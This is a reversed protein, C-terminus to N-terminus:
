WSTIRARPRMSQHCSLGEESRARCRPSSSRAHATPQTEHLFGQSSSKPPSNSRPRRRNPSHDHGETMVLRKRRVVRLAETSAVSASRLLHQLEDSARKQSTARSQAQALDSAAKTKQAQLEQLRADLHERTRGRQHCKGFARCRQEKEDLHTWLAETEAARREAEEVGVRARDVAEAYRQCSKACRALHEQSRQFDDFGASEAVEGVHSNTRPELLKPQFLMQSPERTSQQLFFDSESRVLPKSNSSDDGASVQPADTHRQASSSRARVDDEWLQRGLATAVDHDGKDDHMLSAANIGHQVVVRSSAIPPGGCTRSIVLSHRGSRLPVFPDATHFLGSPVPASEMRLMRPDRFALGRSGCAEPPVQSTPPPPGVTQPSAWTFGGGFCGACGSTGGDVSAGQAPKGRGDIATVGRAALARPESPWRGTLTGTPISSRPTPTIPRSSPASAITPTCPLCPVYLVTAPPPPMASPWTKQGHQLTVPALLSM